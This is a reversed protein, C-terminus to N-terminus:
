DSAKILTSKVTDVKQNAKVELVVPEKEPVKKLLATEFGFCYYGIMAMTLAAFGIAFTSLLRAIVFRFKDGWDQQSRVRIEDHILNYRGVAKSYESKFNQHIHVNPSMEFITKKQQDILDKLSEDDLTPKQAKIRLTLQITNKYLDEVLRDMGRHFQEVEMVKNNGFSDKKDKIFVKLSDGFNSNVKTNPM